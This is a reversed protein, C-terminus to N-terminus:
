SKLIFYKDFLYHILFFSNIAEISIPEEFIFHRIVFNFFLLISIKPFDITADFPISLPNTM